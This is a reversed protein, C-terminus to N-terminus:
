LLSTTYQNTDNQLEGDAQDEPYVGNAEPNTYNTYLLSPDVQPIKAYVDIDFTTESIKSIVKKTALLDHVQEYGFEL